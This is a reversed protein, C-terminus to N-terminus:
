LTTHSVAFKGLFRGTLFNYFFRKFKVSNHGHTQPRAQKAWGTYHLASACYSQVIVINEGGCYDVDCPEIRMRGGISSSTSVLCSPQAWDSGPVRRCYNQADDTNVDELDMALYDPM